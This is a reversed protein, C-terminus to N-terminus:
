DMLPLAVLFKQLLEHPIDNGIIAMIFEGLKSKIFSFNTKTKKNSMELRVLCTNFITETEHMSYKQERFYQNRSESCKM